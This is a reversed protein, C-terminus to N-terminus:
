KQRRCPITMNIIQGRRAILVHNQNLTPQYKSSGSCTIKYHANYDLGPIFAPLTYDIKDVTCVIVGKLPKEEKDHIHNGNQDIFADIVLTGRETSLEPAKGLIINLINGKHQGPQEGIRSFSNNKAGPQKDDANCEGITLLTLFAFVIALPAVIIHLSTNKLIKM